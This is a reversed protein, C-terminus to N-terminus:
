QRSQLESTHEESRPSEVAAAAATSDGAAMKAGEKGGGCAALLSNGLMLGGAGLASRRIFGRRTIAQRLFAHLEADRQDSERRSM